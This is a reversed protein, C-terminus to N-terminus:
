DISYSLNDIEVLFHRKLVVLGAAVEVVTTVRTTPEEFNPEDSNIKRDLNNVGIVYKPCFHSKKFAFCGCSVLFTNKYRYKQFLNMM